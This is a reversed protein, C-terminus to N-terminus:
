DIYVAALSQSRNGGRSPLLTSVATLCALYHSGECFGDYLLPGLVRIATPLFTVSFAQGARYPWQLFAISRVM